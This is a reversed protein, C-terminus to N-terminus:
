AAAPRRSIGFAAETVVNLCILHPDPLAAPAPSPSIPSSAFVANQDAAVLQSPSAVALHV